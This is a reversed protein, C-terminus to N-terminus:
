PALAEDVVGPNLDEEHIQEVEGKFRVEVTFPL